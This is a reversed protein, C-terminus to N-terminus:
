LLREPRAHKDTYVYKHYYLAGFGMSKILYILM